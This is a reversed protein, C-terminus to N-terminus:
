CCVGGLTRLITEEGEKRKGPELSDCILAEVKNIKRIKGYMYLLM